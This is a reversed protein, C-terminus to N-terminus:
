GKQYVRESRFIVDSFIKKMPEYDRSAGARVAAFYDEKKEGDMDTFDLLPFGKQLAMLTSLLRALRGNGERFPHILLFEVPVIALMAIFQDRSEFNCPTYERLINKEFEDM